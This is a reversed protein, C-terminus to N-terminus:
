LGFRKYCKKITFSLKLNQWAHSIVKLNIHFIKMQFNLNVSPFKLRFEEGM